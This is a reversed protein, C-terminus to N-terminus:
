RDYANVGMCQKVPSSGQGCLLATQTEEWVRTVWAVIRAPTLDPQNEEDVMLGLFRGDEVAWSTRFTYGDVPWAGVLRAGRSRVKDALFFLADGFTAPYGVQDGLGFLAVVKGSLDLDDFEDFVAEWDQQLQGTNWTPVGLILLDFEAMEALYYEAVDFLEVAVGYQARLCAHIAQAVAATNGTTSGYFLAIRLQKGVTAPSQTAEHIHHTM